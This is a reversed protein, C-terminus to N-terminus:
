SLYETFLGYFTWRGMDEDGERDNQIFGINDFITKNKEAVSM